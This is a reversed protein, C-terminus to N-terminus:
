TLFASTNELAKKSIMTWHGSTLWFELASDVLNVMEESDYVRGAYSIRDGPVFSEKNAHFKDCYAEVQQLIAKRAQKETLDEFM